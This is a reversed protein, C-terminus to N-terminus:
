AYNDGISCRDCKGNNILQERESIDRNCDKCKYNM